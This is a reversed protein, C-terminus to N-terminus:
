ADRLSRPYKTHRLRHKCLAPPRLILRQHHPRLDDATAEKGCWMGFGSSGRTTQRRLIWWSTVVGIANGTIDWMLYEAPAQKNKMSVSFRCLMAIHMVYKVHLSMWLCDQSRGKAPSRLWQGGYDGNFRHM